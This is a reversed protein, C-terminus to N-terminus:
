RDDGNRSGRRVIPALEMYAFIVLSAILTYAIMGFPSYTQLTAFDEGLGGSLALSTELAGIALAPLFAAALRPWWHPQWSTWLWVILVSTALAVDGITLMAYSKWMDESDILLESGRLAVIVLAIVTMAALLHSLSYQWRNSVDSGALQRWFSTQKLLWLTLALLSFFSGYIGCAEAFSLEAVRTELLSVVGVTLLAAAWAAWPKRAGFLCWMAVVSVQGTELADYLFVAQSKIGGEVLWMIAVADVAATAALLLWFLIRPPTKV